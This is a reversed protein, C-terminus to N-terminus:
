LPSRQRSFHLFNKIHTCGFDLFPRKKRHRACLRNSFTKSCVSPWPWRKEASFKGRNWQASKWIGHFEAASYHFFHAVNRPM